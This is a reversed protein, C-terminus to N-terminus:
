HYFSYKEYSSRVYSKETSRTVDLLSLFHTHIPPRVTWLNHKTFDLHLLARIFIWHIFYSDVRSHFAFFAWTMSNTRTKKEEKPRKIYIKKGKRLTQTHTPVSTDILPYKNTLSIPTVEMIYIVEKDTKEVEIGFTAMEISYRLSRILFNCVYGNRFLTAFSSYM